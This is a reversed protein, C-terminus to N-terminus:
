LLGFGEALGGAVKMRNATDNEDVQAQGGAQALRNKFTNENADTRQAANFRNIADQAAAREYDQTWMGGAVGAADRVAQQRAQEAQGAVQVAEVAGRNAAEQGAVQQAVLTNGSTAMGKRAANDMIAQENSKATNEVASTMDALRARDIATLGGSQYQKQLEALASMQAARTEPDTSLLESPGVEQEKQDAYKDLGAYANSKGGGIADSIWGIPDIGFM